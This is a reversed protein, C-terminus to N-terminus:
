ASLSFIIMKLIQRPLLRQLGFFRSLKSVKSDWRHVRAENDTSNMECEFKILFSIKCVRCRLPLLVGVIFNTVRIRERRIIDLTQATKICPFLYPFKNTQGNLFRYNLTTTEKKNRVSFLYIHTRLTFPFYLLILNINTDHLVFILEKCFYCYILPPSPSILLFFYQRLYVFLYMVNHKRKRQTDVM